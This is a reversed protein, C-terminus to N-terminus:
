IQTILFQREPSFVFVFLYYVWFAQDLKGQDAWTNPYGRLHLGAAPLVRIM